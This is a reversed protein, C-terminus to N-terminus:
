RPVLGAVRSAAAAATLAGVLLTRIVKLDLDARLRDAQQANHLLSSWYELFAHERALVRGRLEDPVQPLM